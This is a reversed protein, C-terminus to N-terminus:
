FHGCKVEAKFLVKWLWHNYSDIYEQIIMVVYKSPDCSTKELLCKKMLTELHIAKREFFITIYDYQGSSNCVATTLATNSFNPDLIQDVLGTLTAVKTGVTLTPVEVYYSGEYESKVKFTIQLYSDEPQSGERRFIYSPEESGKRVYRLKTQAETQERVYRCITGGQHVMIKPEPTTEDYNVYNVLPGFLPEFREHFRSLFFEGGHQQYRGQLWSPREEEYCNYNYGFLCEEKYGIKYIKPKRKKIATSLFKMESCYNQLDVRYDYPIYNDEVQIVTQEYNVAGWDSDLSESDQDVFDDSEPEDEKKRLYLSESDDYTQNKNKDSISTSYSMSISQATDASCSQESSGLSLLCCKSM